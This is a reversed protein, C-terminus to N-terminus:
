FLMQSFLFALLSLERKKLLGGYVDPLNDEFVVKPYVKQCFLLYSIMNLAFSLSLIIQLLVFGTVNLLVCVGRLTWGNTCSERSHM